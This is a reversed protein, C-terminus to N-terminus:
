LFAHSIRGVRFCVCDYFTLTGLKEGKIAPINLFTAVYDRFFVMVAHRQNDEPNDPDDEDIGGSCFAQYCGSREDALFICGKM